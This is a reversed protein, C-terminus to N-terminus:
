GGKTKSKKRFGKTETYEIGFYDQLLIIRDILSQYAKNLTNIEETIRRKKSEREELWEKIGLDWIAGLIILVLLILLGGIIFGVLTEM